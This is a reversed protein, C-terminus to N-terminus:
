NKCNDRRTTLEALVIQWRHRLEDVMKQINASESPQSRGVVERCAIGINSMTRHKMTVQKELDKQKAKAQTLPLDANQWETIMKEASTLWEGFTQCNNHLNRWTDMCKLWRHVTICQIRRKNEGQEIVGSNDTQAVLIGTIMMTNQEDVMIDSKHRETYGRNVQSWEERLKDVVRRVQDGQERRARRMVGDRDYEIEDVSPKLANLSEKVKKLCEEQTPFSDYDRGSLPFSNLQRSITSTAERVKNVRTVFEAAQTGGIDVKSDPVIKEKSGKQFHQFQGHVDQWKENIAAVTEETDDRGVRLRELENCKENLSAIEKEKKEFEEQFAKLQVEENNAQELRRKADKLWMQLEAVLKNYEKLRDEGQQAETKRAESESKVQQWKSRLKDQSSEKLREARSPDSSHVTLVLGDGRSILTAVDPALFSLERELVKNSSTNGSMHIPRAPGIAQGGHDGSKVGKSKKKYPNTLLRIKASLDRVMWSNITLITCVICFTVKLISKLTFSSITQRKRKHVHQSNVELRKGPDKESSVGKVTVLMVDMRRLMQQAAQEFEAIDKALHSPLSSTRPTPQPAQQQQRSSTVLKTTTVSTTMTRVPSTSVPSGENSTAAAR